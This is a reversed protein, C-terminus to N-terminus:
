RPMRKHNRWYYDFEILKESIDDRIIDLKADLKMKINASRDYQGDRYIHFNNM